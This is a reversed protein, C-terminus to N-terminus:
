EQDPRDPTAAGDSGSCDTISNAEVGSQEQRYIRLVRVRQVRHDVIPAPYVRRIVCGAAEQDARSM